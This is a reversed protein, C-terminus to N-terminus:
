CIRPLPEGSLPEILRSGGVATKLVVRGPAGDLVRGIIQADKGEPTSRMVRLVDEAETGRVVAVCKGENALYLPDMGLLECAAAVESRLPLAAEEVEIGVQARQAVEWLTTGLGGRTPDRLCHVAGSCEELVKQVLHNLPQTDSKLDGQVSIGARCTLITIGHDAITGSCIVADGPRANALSIEVGEPLLGIGSTNIFVKDGKGRPVVKTDGTVVFVGARRAAAAVADVVQELEDMPLGEELILGLSLCLPKAGVMALDNVTGFVALEGINGGPFFIPDVVYSDTTFALRGNGATKLVASDGLKCLEPNKLRKVLLEDILNQTALGGSGHDLLITKPNM